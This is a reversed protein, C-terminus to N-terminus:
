VLNSICDNAVFDAYYCRGNGPICYKDMPYGDTAECGAVAEVNALAFDSIGNMVSQSQYVNYGAVAVIAAVFFVKLIKKM